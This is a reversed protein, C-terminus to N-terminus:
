GLLNLSGGSLISTALRYQKKLEVEYTIDNSPTTVTHTTDGANSWAVFVYRIGSTEFQPSPVSLEHETGPEWYLDTEGIYYSGDAMVIKALNNPKVKVRQGRTIFWWDDSWRSRVGNKVAAVRWYYETRYALDGVVTLLDTIGSQDLVLVKFGFDKAVQVHYSSAGAVQEWNLMITLDRGDAGIAPSLHQAMHASLPAPGFVASITTHDDPKLIRPNALDDDGWRVFIWNPPPVAEITVEEGDRVQASIAQIGNVKYYGGSGPDLYSPPDFTINFLKPMSATYIESGTITQTLPNESFSRNQVLAEWKGFERTYVANNTQDLVDQRIARLTIQSGQSVLFGKGNAGIIKHQQLPHDPSEFEVLGRKFSNRVTITPLLGAESAFLYLLGATSRIVYAFSKDAIQQQNVFTPSAGLNEMEDSIGQYNDDLFIRPNLNDVANTGAYYNNDGAAFRLGLPTSSPFYDTLQNTTYFLYRLPNATGVPNIIGKQVEPHEYTWDMARFTTPMNYPYTFDSNSEPTGMWMEYSERLDFDVGLISENPGHISEHTHAPVSMDGLLHAIRGLMEWVIRDKRPLTAGEDLIVEIPQPYRVFREQQQDAYIQPSCNNSGPLQWFGTLKVRRTKYLDVIGNYTFAIGYHSITVSGGGVKNFTETLANALGAQYSDVLEWGAGHWYKYAKTYANPAEGIVALQSPGYDSRDANWFHTTSVTIKNHDLSFVPDSQDEMWAGGAVTGITWNFQGSCGSAGGVPGITGIRNEMEAPLSPYKQKLLFWAQRVIWQHVWEHHALSQTLFLSHFCVLCIFLRLNRKLM